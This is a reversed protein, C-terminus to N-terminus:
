VSFLSEYNKYSNRAFREWLVPEHSFFRNKSMFQLKERNQSIWKECVIVIDYSIVM